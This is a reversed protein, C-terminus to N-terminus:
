GSVSRLRGQRWQLLQIIGSGRILVRRTGDGVLDMSSVADLQRANLAFDDRRHYPPTTEINAIAPQRRWSGAIRKLVLWRYHRGTRSGTQHSYVIATENEGDADLDVQLAREVRADRGAEDPALHDRLRYLKTNAEAVLDLLLDVLLLVHFARGEEHETFRHATPNRFMLFASRFLNLLGDQEAPTQGFNLPAGVKFADLALDIGVRELPAGISSRLRNELVIMAVRIADDLQEDEILRGCREVIEQDFGHGRAWAVIGNADSDFSTEDGRDLARIAREVMNRDGYERSVVLLSQTMVAAMRQRRARAEEPTFFDPALGVAVAAKTAWYDLSGKVPTGPCYDSVKFYWEILSAAEDFPMQHVFEAILKMGAQRHFDDGHRVYREAVEWIHRFQLGMGMCSGNVLEPDIDSGPERSDQGNM